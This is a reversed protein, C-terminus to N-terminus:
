KCKARAMELVFSEAMAVAEGTVSDMALRRPVLNTALFSVLSLGWPKEVCVLAKGLRFVDKVGELRSKRAWPSSSSMAAVTSVIKLFGITELTEEANGLM